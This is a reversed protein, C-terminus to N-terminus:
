ADHEIVQPQRPRAKQLADLDRKVERGRRELEQLKEDHRAAPGNIAAYAESMVEVPKLGLAAIESYAKLRVDHSSSTARAALAKGTAEAGDRDFMGGAGYEDWDDESGGAEVHAEWAKELMADHAADLKRVVAACISKRMAQQLSVERMHRRQVIEWEIAILNEAIVCEYATAPAFTQMMAAHFDDFAGPDEGILAERKPLIAAFSALGFPTADPQSQINTM